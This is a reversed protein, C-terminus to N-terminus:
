DGTRWQKRRRSSSSVKYATLGPAVSTREGAPVAELAGEGAQAYRGHCEACIARVLIEKDLILMAVSLDSLALVVVGVHQLPPGRPTIAHKRREPHSWSNNSSVTTYIFPFLDSRADDQLPQPGAPGKKQSSSSRQCRSVSYKSCIEPHHTLRAHM